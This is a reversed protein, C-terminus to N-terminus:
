QCAVMMVKSCSNKPMKRTSRWPLPSPRKLVLLSFTKEAYDADTSFTATYKTM